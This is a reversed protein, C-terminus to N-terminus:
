LKKQNSSCIYCMKSPFGVNEESKVFIQLCKLPLLLEAFLLLPRRRRSIIIFYKTGKSKRKARRSITRQSACEMHFPLQPAGHPDFLMRPCLLNFVAESPIFISFLQFLRLPSFAGLRECFPSFLLYPPVAVRLSMSKM